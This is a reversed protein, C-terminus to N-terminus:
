AAHSNTHSGFRAHQHSTYEGNNDMCRVGDSCELTTGLRHEFCGHVFQTDQETPLYSTSGESCQTSVDVMPSGGGGHPFSIEVLQQSFCQFGFTSLHSTPSRLTYSDWFFWKETSCLSRAPDAVYSCM